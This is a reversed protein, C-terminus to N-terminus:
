LRQLLDRTVYKLRKERAAREGKRAEMYRMVREASGVEEWTEEYESRLRVANELSEWKGVPTLTTPAAVSKGIESHRTRKDEALRSQNTGSKTQCRKWSARSATSRTPAKLSGSVMGSRAKDRRRSSKFGPKEPTLHVNPSPQVEELESLPM